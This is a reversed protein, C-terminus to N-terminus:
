GATYHRTDLRRFLVDAALPVTAIGGIALLLWGLTRRQDRGFQGALLLGLGVGRAVRTVAILGLEAMPLRVQKM